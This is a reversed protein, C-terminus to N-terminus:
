DNLRNYGRRKIQLAIEFLIWGLLLLGGVMLFAIMFSIYVNTDKHSLRVTNDAYYCTLNMGTPYVENLKFQLKDVNHENQYVNIKGSTVTGIKFAVNIFGNYCDKYIKGQYCQSIENGTIVCNTAIAKNNWNAANVYGNYYLLLAPLLCCLGLLSIILIFRCILSKDGM